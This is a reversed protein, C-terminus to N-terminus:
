TVSPFWWPITPFHSAYEKLCAIYNGERFTELEPHWAPYFEIGRPTVKGIEYGLPGLLQFADLLLHHGFIWRHNYEFQIVDIAQGSLLGLAGKLVMLDHGEADIKLLDVHPISHLRCYYDLTSLSVEESPHQFRSDAYLSSSGAGEHPKHLRAHGSSDSLALRCARASGRVPRRLLALELQRHATASPEFAHLDVEPEGLAALTDLLASTWQGTNAGVDFVVFRRRPTLSTREAFSSTAVTQVLLEGNSDMRNVVDLRAQDLLYRALRVLNRRGLCAWLAMVLARKPLDRGRLYLSM